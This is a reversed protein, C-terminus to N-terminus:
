PTPEYSSQRHAGARGALDDLVRQDRGAEVRKEQAVYSAALQELVKNNRSAVVLQARQLDASVRTSEVTTAQESVAADLRERFAQRNALLAPNIAVSSEVHARAYEDRYQVLLEYRREEEGLRQTTSAVSRAATEQRKSAVQLVPNLRASRM